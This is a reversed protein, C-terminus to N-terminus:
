FLDGVVGDLLLPLDRGDPLHLPALVEACDVRAGALALFDQAEVRRFVRFLDPTRLGSDPTLVLRTRVGSKLSRVGSEEPLVGRHERHAPRRAGTPGRPQGSM